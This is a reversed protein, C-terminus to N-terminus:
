RTNVKLAEAIYVGEAGIKNYELSIDRMVYESEVGRCYIARAGINNNDLCIDRLSTNVKLAKAIYTAGEVGIKNLGVIETLLTNM